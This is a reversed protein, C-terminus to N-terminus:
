FFHAVIGSYNDEPELESIRDKIRATIEEPSGHIMGLMEKQFIKEHVGDTTLIVYDGPEVTFYFNQFYIEDKAGLANDLINRRPYDLFQQKTLKGADLLRQAETHAVTLKRIGNGRKISCRTDGVHVGELHGDVINLATMTTAMSKYQGSHQEKRVADHATFVVTSFSLKPSWNKVTKMAIDAATRGGGHGGLGDAIALVARNGSEMFFLADENQNRPGTESFSSVSVKM